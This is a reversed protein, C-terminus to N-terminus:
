PGHQIRQAVHHFSYRASFNALARHPHPRCDRGPRLFRHERRHRRRRPVRTRHHHGAMGVMQAGPSRHGARSRTRRPHVRERCSLTRQAGKRSSRIGDAVLFAATRDTSNTTITWANIAGKLAVGDVAMQVAFVAAVVIAAAGGLVGLAGDIGGGRSLHRGLAVLSLTILLAGIFQGIHVPVWDTSEAYETFARTSDNPDAHHPHLFGLPVQITLGVVAIVAGLRLLHRDDGVAPDTLPLSTTAPQSLPPNPAAHTHM